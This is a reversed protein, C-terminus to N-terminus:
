RTIKVTCTNVGTKSEKFSGAPLSGIEGGLEAIWARFDAHRRDKRFEVSSPVVSVLTGGPVLMGFAHRVHDLHDGRGVKCFPPNMVVAQFAGRRMDLFDRVSVLKDRSKLVHELLHGQREMDYECATVRAGAAQLALVIAGKGASPELAHDGNKVGAMTVLTQALDVPTPFWGLEPGTDVTGTDIVGDIRATPDIPFVHAKAYRNWKGGIAELVDNVKGYMKRDLQTTIKVHYSQDTARELALQSIVGLVEPNINM